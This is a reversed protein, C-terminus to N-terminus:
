LIGTSRILSSSATLLLRSGLTDTGVLYVSLSRHLYRKKNDRNWINSLEM